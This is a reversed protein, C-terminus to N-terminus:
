ESEKTEFETTRFIIEKEDDFWVLEWMNSEGDIGETVLESKLLYKM